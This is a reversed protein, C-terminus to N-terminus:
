SELSSIGELMFCKQAEEYDDRPGDRTTNEMIHNSNEEENDQLVVQIEGDELNDSRQDEQNIYQQERNDKGIQDEKGDELLPIEHSEM